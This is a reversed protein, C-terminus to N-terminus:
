DEMLIVLTRHKCDTSLLCYKFLFMSMPWHLGAALAMPNSVRISSLGAYLTQSMHM